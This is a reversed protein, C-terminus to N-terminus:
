IKWCKYSSQQLNKSSICESYSHGKMCLFMPTDYNKKSVEKNLDSKVQLSRQVSDKFSNRLTDLQQKVLLLKKEFSMRLEVEFIRKSETEKHLQRKQFLYVSCELFM